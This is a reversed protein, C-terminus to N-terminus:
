NEQALNVQHLLTLELHKVLKVLLKVQKILDTILDWFKEENTMKDMLTGDVNMQKKLRAVIVMITM